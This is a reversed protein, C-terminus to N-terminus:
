LMLMPDKTLGSPSPPPNRPKQDGGGEGWLYHEIRTLRSNVSQSESMVTAVKREIAENQKKWEEAIVFYQLVVLIVFAVLKMSDLCESRRRIINANHEIKPLNEELTSKQSKDKKKEFHAYIVREAIFTAILMLTGAIALILAM